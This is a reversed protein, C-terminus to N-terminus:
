GENLKLRFDHIKGVLASRTAYLSNLRREALIIKKDNIQQLEQMTEIDYEILERDQEDM